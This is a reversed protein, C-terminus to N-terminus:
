IFCYLQLKSHQIQNNSSKYNQVISSNILYNPKISSNLVNSVFHEFNTEMKRCQFSVQFGFGTKNLIKHLISIDFSQIKLPKNQALNYCSAKHEHPKEAKDIWPAPLFLLQILSHLRSVAFM